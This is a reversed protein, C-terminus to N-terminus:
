DPDGADGAAKAETSRIFSDKGDTYTHIDEPHRAALERKLSAYADRDQPHSRLWDRFALHRREWDSGAACVHLHIRAPHGDDPRGYGKTLYEHEATSPDLKYTYGIGELAPVYAARPTLSRVSVQIDIVDKAALGPVATSGVHDIRVALEGLAQRLRTGEEAFRGPWAPDPDVIAFPRSRGTREGAKARTGRLKAMNALGQFLDQQPADRLATDEPHWQVGVIWRDWDAGDHQEREIAEVLGDDSWGTPVLGDGIRDVGQHHHSSCTLSDFGTTALLLSGPAVKVDHLSPTGALPAGHESTGPVSPLHPHLTGGFAVNLVQMGRCVCLAPIKLRDAARVLEIEIEDRDPEV